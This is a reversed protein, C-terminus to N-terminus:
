ICPIKFTSTIKRTIPESSYLSRWLISLKRIILKEINALYSIYNSYNNGVRLNRVISIVYFVTENKESKKRKESKGNVLLTFYYEIKPTLM